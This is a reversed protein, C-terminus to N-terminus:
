VTPDSRLIGKEAAEAWGLDAYVDDNTEWLYGFGRVPSQLGASSTGRINTLAQDDWSDDFQSWNGDNAYVFM